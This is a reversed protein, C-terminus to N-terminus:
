NIAIYRRAGSYSLYSIWQHGDADLVRDYNVTEGPDYTAITPASMRAESKIPSPVTFRYTGSAPINVRAPTTAVPQPAPNQVEEVPIYRRVGSYSIYSIWKHGDAQMVRDYNVTQGAEYTALDPASMRPINKVGSSKTFRYIGSSALESSAEQSHSTRAPAGPAIDKFHIFGTVSSTPIIRTHYHGAYDYNYEEIRVQDGMLEAVWAVHCHDWWAVAGLAPTKDVRIGRSRAIGGWTDANGYGAPLNYGNASSLRYAVFSTCERNYMTWPDVITDQAANKLHAPYDDGRFESAIAAMRFSVSPVNVTEVSSKVERTELNTTPKTKIEQRAIATPSTTEHTEAIPALMAKEETAIVTKEMQVSPTENVTSTGTNEAVREVSALAATEEKKDVSETFLEAIPATSDTAIVTTQETKPLAPASDVEDASAQATVLTFATLASAALLSYKKLTPTANFQSM